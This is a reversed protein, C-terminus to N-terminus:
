ADASEPKTFDFAGVRDSGRQTGSIEVAGETGQAMGGRSREAHFVEVSAPRTLNQASGGRDQDRPVVPLADPPQQRPEHRGIRDPDRPRRASWPCRLARLQSAPGPPGQSDAALGGRIGQEIRRAQSCRRACAGYGMPRPASPRPM